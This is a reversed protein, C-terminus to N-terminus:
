EGKEESDRFRNFCKECFDFDVKSRDGTTIESLHFFREDKYPMHGCIDCKYVRMKKRRQEIM